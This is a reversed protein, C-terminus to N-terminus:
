AVNQLVALLPCLSSSPTGVPALWSDQHPKQGSSSKHCGFRVKTVCWGSFFLIM